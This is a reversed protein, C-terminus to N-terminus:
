YKLKFEQDFEKIITNIEEIAKTNNMGHLLRKAALLDRINKSDTTKNGSLKNLKSLRLIRKQLLKEASRTQSHKELILAANESTIPINLICYAIAIQRQSYSTETLVRKAKGKVDERYRNKMHMIWNAELALIDERTKLLADTRVAHSLLEETTIRVSTEKNIQITVEGSVELGILTRRYEESRFYKNVADRTPKILLSAEIAITKDAHITAYESMILGSLFDAVIRVRDPNNKYVIVCLIIFSFVEEKKFYGDWTPNKGVWKNFESEIINDVDVKWHKKIDM